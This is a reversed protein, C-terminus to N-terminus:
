SAKFEDLISTIERKSLGKLIAKAKKMDPEMGLGKGYVRALIKKAPVFGDAAVTELCTLIHPEFPALHPEWGFEYLRALERSAIESLAYTENILIPLAYDARNHMVLTTGLTENGDIRNYDPFAEWLRTRYDQFAELAESRRRDSKKRSLAQRRLKSLADAAPQHGFEAAKAWWAVAQGLNKDVGKGNKYANGLFFQAQQVGGTAAEGLLQAAEQDQRTLQLLLALRYRADPFYSQWELAERYSKIAATTQGLSYLASGLSYHAHALSPEIRVAEKLVSVASRWDQKAMLMIGLQLHAKAHDPSLRIAVRCEEIAADLDGIRYLGQALNLRDEASQPSLRVSGRLEGLALVADEQERRNPEPTAPAEPIAATDNGREEAGPELQDNQELEGIPPLSEAPPDSAPNELPQAMSSNICLLFLLSSLAGAILWPWSM